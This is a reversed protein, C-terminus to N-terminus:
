VAHGGCTRGADDPAAHFNGFCAADCLRRRLLGCHHSQLLCQDPPRRSSRLWSAGFVSRCLLAAAGKLFREFFALSGTGSPGLGNHAGPPMGCSHVPTRPKTLEEGERKGGGGSRELLTASGYVRRSRFLDCPFPNM